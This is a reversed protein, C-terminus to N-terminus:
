EMVRVTNPGAIIGHLRRRNDLRVYVEDGKAGRGIATGRVKIAVGATSYVVDVDDGARILDPQAVGPEQLIEGAHIVRRAVWGPAVKAAEPVTGDSLTTDAWKIDGSSLVAGRMLDRAAVPVKDRGSSSQARATHVFCMLAALFAANQKQM